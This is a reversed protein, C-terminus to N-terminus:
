LTTICLALSSLLLSPRPHLTIFLCLFIICCARPAHSFLFLFLFNQKLAFGFIHPYHVAFNLFLFLHTHFLVFLFSFLSPSISILSLSLSLPPSFDAFTLNDKVKMM